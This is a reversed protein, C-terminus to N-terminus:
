DQPAPAASSTRVRTGLWLMFTGLLAVGASSAFALPITSAGAVAGLTVPGLGFALDIFASFTGLAAGRQAAPVGSMALLALAPTTFAVGLALVVTGVMLGIPDAWLGMILLGAATIVMASGSLQRAGVRDPLKAGVLRALIVVGGFALLYPSAGALGLDRVAYLPALTFYGAMGWVGAMLVVGPLVGARHLLRGGASDETPEPRTETLFLCIVTALAAVAAAAIWVAWYRGEGLAIEALVPGVAIGLYLTLSDYTIAEGQRGEPALDAVAAFAAVFFFAEAVGMTLRLGILIPLTTAALHGLAAVSFLAAGGVMLARRGRRDALRGAYPRLILATLSFAGFALGAGVEGGGLPGDVYRSLVAFTMGDATFYVFSALLLLLFPRTWLGTPPAAAM